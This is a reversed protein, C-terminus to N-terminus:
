QRLKRDRTQRDGAAGAAAVKLQHGTAHRRGVSCKRQCSKRGGRRRSWRGNPAYLSAPVTARALRAASSRAAFDVKWSFALEGLNCTRVQVGPIQLLDSASVGIDVKISAGQFLDGGQFEQRVTYSFGSDEVQGLVSTVTQLCSFATLLQPEAEPSPSCTVEGLSLGRKVLAGSDVQIIYAGPVISSPQGSPSWRAVSSSALLVIPLIIAGLM